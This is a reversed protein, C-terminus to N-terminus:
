PAESLKAKCAKSIKVHEIRNFAASYAYDKKCTSENTGKRFEIEIRDPCADLKLSVNYIAALDFRRYQTVTVPHSILPNFYNLIQEDCFNYQFNSVLEYSDPVQMKFKNEEIGKQLEVLNEGYMNYAEQKEEPTLEHYDRVRNWGYGWRYTTNRLPGGAARVALYMMRARISKGKGKVCAYLEEDAQKRQEQTGGLWYHTDHQVCCELWLSPSEKIGEHYRSCGDTTFPQLELKFPSSKQGFTYGELTESFGKASLLLLVVFILKM